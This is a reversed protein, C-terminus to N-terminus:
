LSTLFQNKFLKEAIIRFKTKEHTLYSKSKRAERQTSTINADNTKMTVHYNTEM